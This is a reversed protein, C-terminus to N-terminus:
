DFETTCCDLVHEQCAGRAKVEHLLLKSNSIDIFIVGLLNQLHTKASLLKESSSASTESVVSIGKRQGTKWFVDLKLVCRSCSMYYDTESIILDVCM